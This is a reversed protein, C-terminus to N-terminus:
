MLRGDPALVAAYAARADVALRRALAAEPAAARQAAPSSRRGQPSRLTPSDPGEGAAEATRIGHDLFWRWSGDPQKKWITFFRGHRPTGGEVVYPGTSFGLDGSISIGAYTPWWRLKGPPDGGLRPLAAVPDPAFLIGDPAVFRRFAPGIGEAAATRAFAREAEVVPAVDAAARPAAAANAALLPLLLPLLGTM